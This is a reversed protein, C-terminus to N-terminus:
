DEFDKISGFCSGVYTDMGNNKVNDIIEPLDDEYRAWDAKMRTTYSKYEHNTLDQLIKMGTVGGTCIRDQESFIEDSANKVLRLIKRKEEKCYACLDNIYYVNHSCTM